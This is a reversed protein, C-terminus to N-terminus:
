GNHHLFTDYEASFYIRKMTKLKIRHRPYRLNGDPKGHFLEKNWEIRKSNLHRRPASPATKTNIDHQDLQIQLLRYDIGNICVIHADQTGIQITALLDRPCKWFWQNMLMLLIVLCPPIGQKCVWISFPSLWHTQTPMNSKWLFVKSNSEINVPQCRSIGPSPLHAMNHVLVRSARKTQSTDIYRVHNPQLKPPWQRLGEIFTTPWCCDQTWLINSYSLIVHYNGALYHIDEFNSLM